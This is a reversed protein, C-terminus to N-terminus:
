GAGIPQNSQSPQRPGRNRYPDDQPRAPVNHHDSHGNQDNPGGNLIVGSGSVQRQGHLNPHSQPQPQSQGTTAPVGLPRASSERQWAVSQTLDSDVRHFVPTSPPRNGERSRPPSNQVIMHQKPSPRNAIDGYRKLIDKTTM